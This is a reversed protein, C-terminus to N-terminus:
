TGEDDEAVGVFQAAAPSLVEHRLRERLITVLMSYGVLWRSVRLAHGAADRLVFRSMQSSFDVRTVDRWRMTRWGFVLSRTRLGDADLVARECALGISYGGVVFLLLVFAGALAVFWPPMGPHYLAAIMGGGGLAVGALVLYTFVAAGPPRLLLRDGDIEPPAEATKLLRRACIPGITLGCVALVLKIVSEDPM